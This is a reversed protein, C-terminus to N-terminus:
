EVPRTLEAFIDEDVSSKGFKGRKPVTSGYIVKARIVEFSYGRGNRNAIKALGNAAETYANTAAGCDFFNLIEPKWNEFATILEKFNVRTLMDMGALWADYREQAEQRGAADYIAFFAEKAQYAYYLEPILGTWAEMAAHDKESLDKERRLIIHRDRMLKRRDTATMNGRMRKRSDDLCKNAMKVVHFKDVVVKAQPLLSLACDRYPKWMDMTVVQVSERDPLKALWKSVTQKDRSALLDIVCREKVDTFICRPRHLLHLEDIGLWTPATVEREAELAAVHERFVNRVTKENVGVDEAVQTFTRVLSREAIYAALRRTMNRREDMEPLLQQFTKDCELCRYRQRVVVMGVRKGHMPTDMFTQKQQDHKYVRPNEVGCRPCVTPTEPKGTVVKMDHADELTELVIWGKMGLRNPV